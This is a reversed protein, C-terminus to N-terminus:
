TQVDYNIICRILHNNINNYLIKSIIIWYQMKGLDNIVIFITVYM